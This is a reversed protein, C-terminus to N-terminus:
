VHRNRQRVLPLGPMRMAHNKNPPSPNSQTPQPSEPEFSRNMGLPVPESAVVEPAAPLPVCVLPEAPDVALPAAPDAELPEAPLPIPAPVPPFPLPPAGLEVLAPPDPPAPTAPVAPIVPVAPRPAPP